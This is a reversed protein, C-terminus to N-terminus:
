MEEDKMTNKLERMLTRITDVLYDIDKNRDMTRKRRKEVRERMKRNKKRVRRERIGQGERVKRAKELKESM